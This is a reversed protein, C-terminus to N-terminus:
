SPFDLPLLAEASCSEKPEFPVFQISKLDEFKTILENLIYAKKSPNEPELQGEALLSKRKPPM